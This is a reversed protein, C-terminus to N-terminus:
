NQFQTKEAVMKETWKDTQLTGFSLIAEFNFNKYKQGRNQGFNPGKACKQAKM